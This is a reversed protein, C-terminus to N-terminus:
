EPRSGRGGLEGEPPASRRVGHWCRGPSHRAPRPHGPPTTTQPRSIHLPVFTAQSPSLRYSDTNRTSVPPEPKLGKTLNEVSQDSGWVARNGTLAGPSTTVQERM